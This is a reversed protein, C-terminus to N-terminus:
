YPQRRSPISIFSFFRFLSISMRTATCSQTYYLLWFIKNDGGEKGVDGSGAEFGRRTGDFILPYRNGALIVNKEVAKEKEDEM